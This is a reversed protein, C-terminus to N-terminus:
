GGAGALAVASRYAAAAGEPEGLAERCQGLLDQVDGDDPLYHALLELQNRAQDFRGLSMALDAAARRVGHRTPERSLVAEYM